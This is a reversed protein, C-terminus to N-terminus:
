AHQGESARLLTLGLGTTRLGRPTRALLGLARLDRVAGGTKIRDVAEDRCRLGPQKRVHVVLASLTMDDDLAARLITARRGKPPIKDPRRLTM